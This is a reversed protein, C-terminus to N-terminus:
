IYISIQITVEGSVIREMSKCYLLHRRALSSGITSGYSRIGHLVLMEELIDALCPNGGYYTAPQLLIQGHDCQSWSSILAYKIVKLVLGALISATLIHQLKEQFRGVILDLGVPYGPTVVAKGCLTFHGSLIFVLEVVHFQVM